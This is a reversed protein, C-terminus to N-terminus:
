RNYKKNFDATSIVDLDSVSNGGTQSPHQGMWRKLNTIDGKSFAHHDPDMGIIESTPDTYIKFGHKTKSFYTLKDVTGGTSHLDLIVFYKKM